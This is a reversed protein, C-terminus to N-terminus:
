NGNESVRNKEEESKSILYEGLWKLPDEPKEKSALKLGTLLHATFHKNLFQRVSTDGVIEHVPSRTGNDAVESKVEPEM